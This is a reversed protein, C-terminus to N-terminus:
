PLFSLRFDRSDGQLPLNHLMVGMQCDDGHKNGLFQLTEFSVVHRFRHRVSGYGSLDNM